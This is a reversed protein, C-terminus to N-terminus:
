QIIFLIIKRSTVGHLRLERFNRLFINGGDELYVTLHSLLYAVVKSIQKERSIKRNQFHLCYSKRIHRHVIVVSCPTSAGFLQLKWKIKYTHIRFTGFESSHKM